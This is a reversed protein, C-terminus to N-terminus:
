AGDDSLDDEKNADKHNEKATKIIENYKPFEAKIEKIVDKNHDTMNDGRVIRGLVRNWRAIKSKYKDQYDGETEYGYLKTLYASYKINWNDTFKGKEEDFVIEPELPPQTGDKYYRTIDSVVKEYKAKLEKDDRFIPIETMRSDDKSIYVVAGENLGSGLLYHYCQLAHNESPIGYKYQSDYMYASSSKVELVRAPLETKFNMKKEVTAIAQTFRKPLKIIKLAEDMQKIMEVDRKGGVVLDLYGVVKLNGKTKHEVRQQRDIFIGARRAVLEVVWEWFVGADFKRKARTDFPNSPEIGQLALWVDIYSKGLESAYIYDRPRAERRQMEDLSVNWAGTFTWTPKRDM